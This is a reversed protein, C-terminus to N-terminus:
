PILAEGPRVRWEEMFLDLNTTVFGSRLTLDKERDDAFMGLEGYVSGLRRQKSVGGEIDSYKGQDIIKVVDGKATTVTLTPHGVNITSGSPLNITRAPKAKQKEGNVTVEDTKPDYIVIDKLFRVAIRTNYTAKGGFDEQRKQVMFDGDFSQLAIFDGHKMNDFKRGSAMVEHPDGWSRFTNKTITKEWSPAVTYKNIVEARLEVLGETGARPTTPVAAPPPAVDVNGYAKIEVGRYSKPAVVEANGVLMWSDRGILGSYGYATTSLTSASETAPALPGTLPRPAPNSGISTDSM